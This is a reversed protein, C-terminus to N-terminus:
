PQFHALSPTRSYITAICSPFRLLYREKSKWFIFFPLPVSTPVEVYLIQMINVTFITGFYCNNRLRTQSSLVSNQCQKQIIEVFTCQLHLLIHLLTNSWVVLAKEERHYKMWNATFKLHLFHTWYLRLASRAFLDGVYRQLLQRIHAQRKSSLINTFVTCGCLTRQKPICNWDYKVDRVAWKSYRRPPWSWPQITSHHVLIVKVSVM